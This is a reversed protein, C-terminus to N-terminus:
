RLQLSQVSAQSPIDFLRWMTYYLSFKGIVMSTQMKIWVKIAILTCKHLDDFNCFIEASPGRKRIWGRWVRTSFYLM